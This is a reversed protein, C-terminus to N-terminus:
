SCRSQILKLCVTIPGGGILHQSCIQLKGSRSMLYVASITALLCTGILIRNKMTSQEALNLENWLKSYFEWIKACRWKFVAQHEKDFAM